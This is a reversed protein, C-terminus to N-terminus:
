AALDAELSLEARDPLAFKSISLGGSLCLTFFAHGKGLRFGWGGEELTEAEPDLKAENAEAAGGPLDGNHVLLDYLSPFPERFAVEKMSEVEAHEEGAGLSLLEGGVEAPPEVAPASANCCTAKEDQGGGENKKKKAPEIDCAAM